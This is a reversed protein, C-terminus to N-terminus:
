LALVATSNWNAELSVRDSEESAWLKLSVLCVEPNPCITSLGGPQTILIDDLINQVLSHDQATRTKVAELPSVLYSLRGAGSNGAM